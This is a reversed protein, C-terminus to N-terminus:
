QPPEKALSVVESRREVVETFKVIEYNEFPELFRGKYGKPQGRTIIAKVKKLEGWESTGNNSTYWEGYSGAKEPFRIRFFERTFSESM